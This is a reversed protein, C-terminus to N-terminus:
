QHVLNVEARYGIAGALKNLRQWAMGQREGRTVVAPTTKAKKAVDQISLGEKERLDKFLQGFEKTAAARSMSQGRTKSSGSRATTKAMIKKTPKRSGNAKKAAM